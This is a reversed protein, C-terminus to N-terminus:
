QNLFTNFIQKICFRGCDSIESSCGVQVLLVNLVEPQDEQAQLLPVQAQELGQPDHHTVDLLESVNKVRIMLQASTLLSLSQDWTAKMNQLLAYFFILLTNM